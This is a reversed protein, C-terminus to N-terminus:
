HHDLTLPPTNVSMAPCVLGERVVPANVVDLLPFLYSHTTVFEAPLTVLLITVNVTLGSTFGLM